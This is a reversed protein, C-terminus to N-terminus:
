DCFQKGDDDLAAHLKENIIVHACGRNDIWFGQVPHGNTELQVLAEPTAWKPRQAFAEESLVIQRGGFRVTIDEASAIMPTTLSVLLLSTHIVVRRVEPKFM